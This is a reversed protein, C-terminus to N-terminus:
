IFFSFSLKPIVPNKGLQKPFYHRPIQLLTELVCLLKFLKVSFLSNRLPRCSVSTNEYADVLSVVLSGFSEDISEYSM